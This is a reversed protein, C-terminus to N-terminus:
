VNCSTGRNTGAQGVERRPTRAPTSRSRPSAWRRVPPAISVEPALILTRVRSSAKTSFVQVVADAVPAFGGGPMTSADVRAIRAAILNMGARVREPLVAMAFACSARPKMACRRVGHGDGIFGVFQSAAENVNADMLTVWGIICRMIDGCPTIRGATM